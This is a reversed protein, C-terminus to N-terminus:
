SRRRSSAELLKDLEIRKFRLRGGLKYFPLKRQHVLNRLSEVCPTGNDRFLRLYIAAEKSNLWTVQSLSKAIENFFVQGIGSISLTANSNVNM